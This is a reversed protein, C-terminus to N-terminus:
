YEEALFRQIRAGLVDPVEREDCIHDYTSDGCYRCPLTVTAPIRETVDLLIAKADQLASAKVRMDVAEAGLRAVEVREAALQKEALQLRGVEILLVHVDHCLDEAFLRTLPAEGRLLSDRGGQTTRLALVPTAHPHLDIIQDLEIRADDPMRRFLESPLEQCLDSLHPHPEGRVGIREALAMPMSGDTVAAESIARQMPCLPMAEGKEGRPCVYCNNAEWGDRETANSFPRFRRQEEM